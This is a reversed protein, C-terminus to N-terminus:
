PLAVLLMRVIAAGLLTVAAAAAGAVAMLRKKAIAKQPVFREPAGFAVVPV